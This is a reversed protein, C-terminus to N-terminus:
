APQERRWLSRCRAWTRALWGRDLAGTHSGAARRPAVAEPAPNPRGPPAVSALVREPEPAATADSAGTLLAEGAGTAWMLAEVYLAGARPLETAALMEDGGELAAVYELLRGLQGRRQVLAERMDGAFPLSGVIDAMPADLMADIVSFLGLTFLEGPRAIGLEEGALECFRARILATVTLEPPKDDVSALVSLSAWRRVNDTGLLALAQGISRVDGRLGFYASNVYRLLRFSLAVDRAILPEVDSLQVESGALAGVVELLALRNAAIGRTCV